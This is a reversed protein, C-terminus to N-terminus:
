VPLITSPVEEILSGQVRQSTRWVPTLNTFNLETQWQQLVFMQMNM